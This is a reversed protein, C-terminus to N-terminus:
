AHGSERPQRMGADFARNVKAILEGDRWPRRPDYSVMKRAAWQLVDRAFGEPCAGAGVLTGISFCEGNVTREQEGNPAGIIARAARDLAGEAYDSLGSCPRVAAPPLRKCIARPLLEPPVDLMPTNIGFHPDWRYGSGPSPAIVYGGLGRWDLQPGIGRGRQGNTNSIPPQPVRFYYHVGGSPTHVTPTEFGLPFGLEALTDFGTPSAKVDIDLVVFAEGTPLGILAKDWRKWWAHIQAADDTAEAMWKVLPRDKRMTPFVRWGRAADGLATDLPPTV